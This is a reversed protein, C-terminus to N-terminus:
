KTKVSKKVSWGSYYKKGNVTKYTRIQVYYKKKAKLGTIVKSTTKYSSVTVTKANSMSSSTSYRIQYGTAQMSIKDWKVTLKKTGGTLSKVKSAKPCIEFYVTKSGSYNGKFTLTVAYKGVNKRGSAYKVDYNSSEIVKGKSDKVTVKPKQAKGNYTYTTQALSITKPYYITEVREEGCGFCMEVIKGNKTATAKVTKPKGWSHELCSFKYGREKAYTEATSDCYGYIIKVEPLSDREFECAANYAYVADMKCGWFADVEINELKEPLVLNGTLSSCVAFAGSEINTLSEPLVLEGVLGSCNGFASQGIRTLGEPLKLEGDFGSCEYFVFDNIEKLGQPLTLNGTLGSCSEFAERGISTLGEPLKLEGTLASCNKFAREGISTVGEPLELKGNFGSCGAFVEDEIEKLGQPLILDGTLSSCNAFAGMGIYSLNEPLELNGTLNSCSAFALEGISILSESLELKGDFGSCDYFAREGVCTLNKPLVLDGTLGDCGSFARDGISVLSEPLKLTGTLKKFNIFASEGIDTIGEEIVLYKVKKDNWQYESSDDVAGSGSIILTGDTKLTWTANEGCSGSDYVSDEQTTTTNNTVDEAMVSMEKMPALLEVVLLAALFLTLRKKEHSKRMKRKRWVNEKLGIYLM